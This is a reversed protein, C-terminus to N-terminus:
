LSKLTRHFRNVDATIASLMVTNQNSAGRGEAALYDENATIINYMIVNM